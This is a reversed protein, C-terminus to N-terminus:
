LLVLREWLLTHPGYEPDYITVQNMPIIENVLREHIGQWMFEIQRRNLTAGADTTRHGGMRSVTVITSYDVSRALFRPNAKRVVFVLRTGYTIDRLRALVDDRCWGSVEARQEWGVSSCPKDPTAHGSAGPQSGWTLFGAANAHALPEAIEVTEDFREGHDPWAAIEGRVFRAMLTCLEAFSDADAWLGLHERRQREQRAMTMVEDYLARLWRAGPSLMTTM